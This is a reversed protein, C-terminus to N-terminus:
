SILRLKAGKYELFREKILEKVVKRLDESSVGLQRRCEAEESAGRALLLKLLKGRMQRHSGEFRSQRAYHASRRTVERCSKKLFSGYDMLAYYWTRPNSCDLTDLVLPEIERDHVTENESFFLYIFVARINTEILPLPQNYAFIRVANATYKGVGPLALLDEDERPLRGAYDNYVIEAAEKLALARRNYGLGQWMALVDTRRARSLARWSPFTRMFARYRPLVTEVQTQQLMIESVFVSYPDLRSRWPLHRGENRFFEM